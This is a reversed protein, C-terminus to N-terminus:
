LILNGVAAILGWLLMSIAVVLLTTVYFPWRRIGSHRHDALSSAHRQDPAIHSVYIHRSVRILYM